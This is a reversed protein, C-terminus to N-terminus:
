CHKMYADAAAQQEGEDWSDFNAKMLVRLTACYEEQSVGGMVQDLEENSLLELM